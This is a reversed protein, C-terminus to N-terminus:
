SFFQPANLWLVNFAFFCLFQLFSVFGLIPNLKELGYIKNYFSYCRKAKKQPTSFTFNFRLPPSYWSIIDDCSPPLCQFEVWVFFFPFIRKTDCILQLFYPSRSSTDSSLCYSVTQKVFAWPNKNKKHLRESCSGNTLRQSLIQSQTQQKM